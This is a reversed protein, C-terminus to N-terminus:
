GMDYTIEMRMRKNTNNCIDMANESVHKIQFDFGSEYLTFTVIYTAM